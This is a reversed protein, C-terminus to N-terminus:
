GEDEIQKRCVWGHNLECSPDEDYTVYEDDPMGRMLKDMREREPQTKKPKFRQARFTRAM